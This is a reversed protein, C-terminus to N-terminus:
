AAMGMLKQWFTPEPAPKKAAEEQLRYLNALKDRFEAAQRYLGASKERHEGSMALYQAAKADDGHKAYSHSIDLHTNAQMSHYTGNREADAIARLYENVRSM